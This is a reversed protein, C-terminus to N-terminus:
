PQALLEIISFTAGQCDNIVSFRGIDPIDTPPVCITAGLTIAKEAYQDCNSVAFYLMWHPPLDGWEETMKLMGSNPVGAVLFETYRVGDMTNIQPQWGFLQSYFDGSKDSDRTALENWCMTENENLIAAGKHQNAQWIAFTAGGPEAIMAMRGAEFVDHPGAIIEAGLAKAKAVTQDVSDVAIYSLWHTKVGREKQEPMMQYMAGIDQDSKQLMTYYSDDGIEQDNAQWNFLKCYFEKASKWDAATLEPWCFTGNPYSNM